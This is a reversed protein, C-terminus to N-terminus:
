KSQQVVICQFELLKCSFFDSNNKCLCSSFQIKTNSPNIYTDSALLFLWRVLIAKLLVATLRVQCYEKSAIFLDINDNTQATSKIM